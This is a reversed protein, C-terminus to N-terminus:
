KFLSMDMTYNVDDVCVMTSPGLHHGQTLGYTEPVKQTTAWLAETVPSQFLLCSFMECGALLETWATTM